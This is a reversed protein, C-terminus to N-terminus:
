SVTDRLLIHKFLYTFKSTTQKQLVCLERDVSLFINKVEPITPDSSIKRLTEYINLILAGPTSNFTRIAESFSITHKACTKLDSM